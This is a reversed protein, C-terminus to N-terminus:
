GAGRGIRSEITHQQRELALASERRGRRLMEDIGSKLASLAENLRGQVELSRALNMHAQFNGPDTAVAMRFSEVAKAFEGTEVYASGISFHLAASGPNKAIKERYASIASAFSRAAEDARGARTLSVGLNYELDPRDEQGSGRAARLGESFAEIAAEYRGREVYLRGLENYIEPARERDLELLERYVAIAQDSDGLRASAVALSYRAAHFDPATRIARQCEVVAESFKGRHILAALLRERAVRHHPLIGLFVRFQDEARVFDGASYLTEAFNFRLWPDTPHLRIAAEYERKFEALADPAASRRLAEATRRAEEMRHAHDLQNSFPPRALRKTVEEFVRHRDFGTFALDRELTGIPPVGEASVRDARIGPPLIERVRQYISKALVYNGAFNLHVHEYFLDNGPIGHPSTAEFEREADVLYIGEATRDAAVDRIIENIRSDARFRLTDLDRALQYRRRAEGHDGIANHARGLLFQLDAYGDDLAGAALFRAIAEDHAGAELARSGQQFLDEWRKADPESFPERHRSAFPPSDGLNSAVTSVVSRGGARRVADLSDELNTRFHRYVNAMGPANRRVQQDLFMEM